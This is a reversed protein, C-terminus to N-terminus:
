EAAKYCWDGDEGQYLRKTELKLINPQAYTDESHSSVKPRDAQKNAEVFALYEATNMPIPLVTQLM